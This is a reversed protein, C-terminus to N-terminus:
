LYICKDTENMGTKSILKETNISKFVNKSVYITNIFNIQKWINLPIIKQENFGIAYIPSRITETIYYQKFPYKM